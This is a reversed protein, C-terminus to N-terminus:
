GRIEFYKWPNRIIKLSKWLNWSIELYKLINGTILFFVLYYLIKYSKLPNLFMKLSKLYNESVTFIDFVKVSYRHAKTWKLLNRPIELPKYRKWHTEFYELVYWLVKLPELLNWIIKLFQLDLYMNWFTEISRIGNEFPNCILKLCKLTNLQNELSQLHNM